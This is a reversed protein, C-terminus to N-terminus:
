FNLSHKGCQAEILQQLEEPGPLADPLKMELRCAKFISELLTRVGYSIIEEGFLDPASEILLLESYWTEGASALGSCEKGLLSRPTAGRSIAMAKIALKTIQLGRMAPSSGLGHRGKTLPAFRELNVGSCCILADTGRGQEQRIVFYLFDNRYIQGTV